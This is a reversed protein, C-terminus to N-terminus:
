RLAEEVAAARECDQAGGPGMSAVAGSTMENIPISRVGGGQAIPM